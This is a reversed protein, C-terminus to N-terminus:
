RSRVITVQFEHAGVRVVLGASQTLVGADRFTAAELAPGDFNPNDDDTTADGEDEYECCMEACLADYLDLDPVGDGAANFADVLVNQLAKATMAGASM